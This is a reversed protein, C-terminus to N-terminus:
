RNLVVPRDSAKVRSGIDDWKSFATVTFTSEDDLSTSSFGQMGKGGLGQQQQPNSGLRQTSAAAPNLPLQFQCRHYMNFNYHGPFNTHM